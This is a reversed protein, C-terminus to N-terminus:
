QGAREKLSFGKFINILEVRNKVNLKNYIHALHAQITRGSINLADAIERSSLGAAAYQIVDLERDTINYGAAFDKMGKMQQAVVLVGVRDEYRDRIVTFRAEYPSRSGDPNMMIMTQLLSDTEGQLM